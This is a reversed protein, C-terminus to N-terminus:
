LPDGNMPFLLQRIFDKIHFEKVACFDTLVEILVDVAAANERCELSNYKVLYKM